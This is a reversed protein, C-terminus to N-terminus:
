GLVAIEVGDLKPAKKSVLFNYFKEATEPPEGEGYTATVITIFKEDKLKNPKYDAMDVLKVDLGRAKAAEAIEAAVHKANGTQSGYLVTLAAADAVPAAIPATAMGGQASAALYGSIWAQQVPTMTGVLQSFQQAQENSLPHLGQPMQTLMM